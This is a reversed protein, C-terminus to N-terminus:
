LIIANASNAVLKGAAVITAMRWFEAIWCSDRVALDLSPLCIDFIISFLKLKQLFTFIALGPNVPVCRGARLAFRLASALIWLAPLVLFFWWLIGMSSKLIEFVYFLALLKWRDIFIFLLILAGYRELSLTTRALVFRNFRPENGEPEEYKSEFQEEAERVFSFM